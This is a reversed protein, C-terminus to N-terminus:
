QLFLVQRLINCSDEIMVWLDVNAQGLLSKEGQSAGVRLVSIQFCLADEYERIEQVLADCNSESFCM